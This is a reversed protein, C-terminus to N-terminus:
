TKINAIFQNNIIGPPKWLFLSIRMLLNKSLTKLCPLNSIYYSVVTGRRIMCKIYCSVQEKENFFVRFIEDGKRHEEAHQSFLLKIQRNDSNSNFVEYNCVECNNFSSNFCYLNTEMLMSLVFKDKIYKCLSFNILNPHTKKYHNIIDYVNYGINADCFECFKDTKKKLFSNYYQKIYDDGISSNIVYINHCDNLHTCYADYTDYNLDVTCVECKRKMSFSQKKEEPFDKFGFAKRMESDRVVSNFDANPHYTKYHLLLQGISRFEGCCIECLYSKENLNIQNRLGSM